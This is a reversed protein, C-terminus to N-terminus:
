KASKERIRRLRDLRRTVPADTVHDPIVPVDDEHICPVDPDNDGIQWAERVVLKSMSLALGLDIEQVADAQQFPMPALLFSGHAFYAALFQDLNFRSQPMMRNIRSAVYFVTGSREAKSINSSVHVTYASPNDRDIGRVIAIRLMEELRETDARQQWERFIQAGASYDAFGFMLLPPRQEWSFGTARWKAKDWLPINIPSLVRREDHAGAERDFDDPPPREGFQVSGDTDESPPQRDSSWQLPTARELAHRESAPDIWDSLLMRPEAGFLNRSAIGVASLGLARGFGIEDGAIRELWTKPDRILMMSTALLILVEQLWNILTPYDSAGGFQGAGHTISISTTTEDLQISPSATPQDAPRVTFELREKYPFVDAALSTSLFSELAALIAEALFISDPNSSAIAVVEVGIIVSRLAVTDADALVPRPPIQQAAPQSMYMAFFNEVDKDTQGEPVFGDDRLAQNGALAWILAGRALLLGESELTAPLQEMARLQAINARMLLLGLIAEWTQLLQPIQATIAEPQETAAVLMRYMDLAGLIQPVRGLELETWILLKMPVVARPDLKGRRDVSSLLRDTAILAKARAAWKLGAQRYASAIAVLTEVLEDIYEVKVLRVEARGLMRIADYIHGKKLKQEGRRLYALGGEAESRRREMLTILADYLADFEESEPIVEGIRVILEYVRELPYDGLHEVKAFVARLANWIKPLEGLRKRQMLPALEMLLRFTEAHAANNPRETVSAVRDLAAALTRGREITRAVDETMAGRMVAPGLLQWLTFAQELDAADDSGLAIEAVTNYFESMAAPDDFWWYATWARNYAIRLRQGPHGLEEAIRAAALFRGEIESQPRELGRALLASELADEALAYRAGNYRSPDAVAADLRELEAQRATDRPGIRENVMESFGTMNLARVALELLGNAYVKDLLWTRDLITVPIGASKTLSDETEARSKEPAYQNTIFYIRTYPRETSIISGVDAKVKDRWKKKASFAFAWRESAASPEGYYWRAAIEPAVPYTESDVKSDGGGTPGTQPRLNPCIEREALARAFYEFENEEKRNTLTELHHDLVVLAGDVHGPVLWRRMMEPPTPAERNTEEGEINHTM